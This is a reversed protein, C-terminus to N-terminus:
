QSPDSRWTASRGLLLTALSAAQVRLDPVAVTEWLSGIRPTGITYIDPSPAGSSNIIRGVSDTDLGRDHPGPRATGEALLARLLPDRSKGLHTELGTANVVCDVRVFQAASEHRPVFSVVTRGDVGHLSSPRGAHLNLQGSARLRGLTAGVHPAIRHRHIDWYRVVHRLFRAQDDRSLTQWLRQGPGRLSRMVAQWPQDQTAVYRRLHHLRQRLSVNAFADVDIEATDHGDDHALPALGHRSFVDIRGRHGNAALTLVADVMSLGAGVIAVDDDAVISALAPGDWAQVVDVGDHAVPLAHACNGIALVISHAEIRAGSQLFLQQSLGPEIAVVRDQVLAIGDAQAQHLQAQLYRGYDRRAIYRDALGSEPEGQALLWRVFHEPQDPLISMSAAPVNLVHEPRTTAYAIGAGPQAGPDILLVSPIASGVNKAQRAIHAAVMVGSAGAGVIAIDVFRSQAATSDSM